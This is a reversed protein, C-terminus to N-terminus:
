KIKYRDNVVGCADALCDVGTCLFRRYEVGELENDMVVCFLTITSHINDNQQQPPQLRTKLFNHAIIYLCNLTIDNFHNILTHTHTHQTLRNQLRKRYIKGVVM